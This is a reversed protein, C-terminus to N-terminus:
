QQKIRQVHLVDDQLSLRYTYRSPSLSQKSHTDIPHWEYVKGSAIVEVWVWKARYAVSVTHYKSTQQKGVSGMAIRYTSKTDPYDDSGLKPFTFIVQLLDVEGVNEVRILTWGLAPTKLISCGNLLVCFGVVAISLNEM